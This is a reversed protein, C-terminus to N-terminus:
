ATAPLGFALDHNIMAAAQYGAAAAAMATQMQTTLDGAAYIGRCSTELRGDVQVFGSPDLALGLSEVLPTQHQPPRAFLVDRAVRTGDALEVAELRGHPTDEGTTAVLRRIPREDIRLGMGELRERMATPVEFRGDTFAVVDASWNLLFAGFELKDLGPALFGFAQDQVEWGHCYPCQFISHGWLERYGPMDPLEDVMGLALIIRRSRVSMGEQLHLQFADLEGTIREVRQGSRAVSPYATLQEHAIRRFEAPPIGDRTVFGHVEHARANRPTGADLLLVRKRSRGLILAASLGAPGGGVIAVDYTAEGDPNPTPLM